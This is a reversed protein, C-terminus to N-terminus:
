YPSAPLNLSYVSSLHASVNPLEHGMVYQFIDDIYQQREAFPFPEKPLKIYIEGLILTKIDARTSEQLKWDQLQATRAQIKTLLEQAFSKVEDREKKNLQPKNLKDFLALEYDSSFGEKIYRIEEQSLASHVAILEEFIQQITVDALNSNYKELIKQYQTMFEYRSDNQAILRKLAQEIRDQLQLIVTKQHKTKAFEHKLREFDIQSLDYQRASEQVTKAAVQLNANIVNQISQLELLISDKPNKLNFQRAIAKLADLQPKFPIVDTSPLLNHYRQELDLYRSMFQARTEQNKSLENQCDYLLQTKSNGEAALLADIPAGLERVYDFTEALAQKYDNFLLISDQLHDVATQNTNNQGVAFISLAKRLSDLMGNYDVILGHKKGGGVRNARAIAQMLTHGHMPKDIYLTALSKVDFGTLWMACVIVFRFPNASHKFEQDLERKQMKERHPAIDLPQGNTDKHQKLEAVENQEGSIVVCFETAIMWDIHSQIEVLYPDDNPLDMQEQALQQQKQAVLNQWKQCISVHMKLCTPRDLCILMAKSNHGDVAQWRDAYHSVIDAAIAELRKPATLFQYDSQAAKILREIAEESKGNKKAQEIRALIRENLNNDANLHLHSGHNEYVLPVTAGDAIARQFNYISVYDGFWDKTAQDEPSNMLPTGTFGLFKANPLAARMNNALDGYQSRHAEDSIVIINDRRSYPEKVWQNYKHVMTFIYPQNGASLKQKLQQGSVVQDSLRSSKGCDAYTKSIQDDLETRDTVLVFSYNQSVKRLIKETLFVMSYSKGSGQTHWFVGLRGAKVEAQINPLPSTLRDIVRNVGLFQHNRAVIKDKGEFLIFNEILDLLTKPQMLGTLLRPLQIENPNPEPDSEDNRKWQKFQDLPATISGYSAEIGNAIIVLANYDFLHPIKDKYDNLNGKFAFDKSIHTNKFEFFVLPLGNIFALLDPRRRENINNAIWLEDVIHYTNNEVQNFDIVKVTYSITKAQDNLAEVKVGKKLLEYRQQNHQILDQRTNPQSLISIANEIGKQPVHPNLRTLAQRLDHILLTDQYSARGLLSIDQKFETNFAHTHQWGMSVLQQIAPQQVRSEESYDKAM